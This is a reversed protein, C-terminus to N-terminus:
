TWVSELSNLSKNKPSNKSNRILADKWHERIKKSFEPNVYKARQLNYSNDDIRFYFGEMKEPGYNSIGLLPKLSMKLYLDYNFKDQELNNLQLILGQRIVPLSEIGSDKLREKLSAQSIFREKEKNFIDFAMFFSPLRDYSISHAYYLWEGFLTENESLLDFLNGDNLEYWDMLKHFEIDEKPNIIQGRHQFVPNGENDFFIGINSGDVKEQLLLKSSNLLAESDKKNLISDGKEIHISGYIHPTRPFKYHAKM